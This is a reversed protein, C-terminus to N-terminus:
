GRRALEQLQLDIGQRGASEETKGALTDAYVLGGYGKSRDAEAM